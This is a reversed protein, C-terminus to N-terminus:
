PVTEGVLTREQPPHAEVALAEAAEPAAGANIDEALARASRLLPLRQIGRGQRSAGALVAAGHPDYPLAGIVQVGLTDAIEAASYSGAGILVLQVRSAAAALMPLRAVVHQLEELVPRVALLLLESARLVPLAASQSYVRGCDAIVDLDEARLLSRECILRVAREAQEPSSPGVLVDVGGLVKQCHEALAGEHGQRRAAAALTVLGPEFTLGFRAALDGGFPDMEAVMARRSAPWVAGLAVATTSVGPSAKISALTIVAM